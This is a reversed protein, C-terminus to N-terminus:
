VSVAANQRMEVRAALFGEEQSRAYAADMMSGTLQEAQYPKLWRRAVLEAVDDLPFETLHGAFYSKLAGGLVGKLKADHGVVFIGGKTPEGCHACRGSGPAKEAKPPREAAKRQAYSSKPAPLVEVPMEQGEHCPCACTRVERSVVAATKPTAPTIVVNHGFVMRCLRHWEEPATTSRADGAAVKAATQCQAFIGAPQATTKTDM